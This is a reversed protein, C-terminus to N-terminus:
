LDPGFRSRHRERIGQPRHAVRNAGFLHRAGQDYAAVEFGM